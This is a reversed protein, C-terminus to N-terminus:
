LLTYLLLGLAYRNAAADWAAGASQEPPTWAPPPTASRLAAASPDGVLAGVLGEAGLAARPPPGADLLRVAAPHLPGASLSAQECAALARAVTACVELADRWPWAKPRARVVDDLSTGTRRLLWAGQEDLGGDVFGGVGAAGLSLLREAVPEADAPLRWLEGNECASRAARGRPPLPATETIGAEAASRRNM